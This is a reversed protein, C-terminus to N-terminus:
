ARSKPDWRAEGREGALRELLAELASREGAAARAEEFIALVEARGLDITPLGDRGELVCSSIRLALGLPVACFFRVGEGRGDPWALAYVIGELLDRRARARVVDLVRGVASACRPELVEEAPVGARRLEEEPLFCVGRELDSRVDRLINILQLGRGFAVARAGCASAVAPDDPRVHRLFLGTLLMGVTGAVFYCYRELDALTRMRLGGELAARRAYEEMGRSMEMVAGRVIARAEPPLAAFRAGIHGAGRCLEHDGHDTRRWEPAGSLAEGAGGQGTLFARFVAFLELRRRDSIEPDDEITDLIRCLLYATRVVGRLEPPLAEISLAFTRSVRPLLRRELEADDERRSIGDGATDLAHPDAM